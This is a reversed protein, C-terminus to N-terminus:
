VFTIKSKLKGFLRYKIANLSNACVIAAENKSRSLLLSYYKQASFSCTAKLKKATYIAKEMFFTFKPAVIYAM